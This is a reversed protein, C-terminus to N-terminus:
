KEVVKSPMSKGCKAANLRSKDMIFIDCPYYSCFESRRLAKFVRCITVKPPKVHGFRTDKENAVAFYRRFVMSSNIEFILFFVSDCKVGAKRWLIREYICPGGVGLVRGYLLHGHKANQHRM